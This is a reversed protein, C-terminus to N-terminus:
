EPESNRHRMRLMMGASRRVLMRVPRPTLRYAHLVPFAAALWRSRGLADLSRWQLRLCERAYAARLRGEFFQADHIRKAALPVSGKLLTGGRAALRIYLDWDFLARRTADYGGVAELAARRLMVSSHCLPNYIPLSRNVASFTVNATEPWEISGGDEGILLQGSGALVADPRSELAAIECRLRNPHAVDDADLVAIWDARSAAIARNLAPGRGIRGARVVRVRPDCRQEVLDATGDTSGDDVIVHEVSVGQQVSVSDIADGIHAAANHATTIVSVDPM